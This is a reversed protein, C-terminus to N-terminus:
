QFVQEFLALMAAWSKKDADADYAIAEMGYSGADPNTFGHKAGPYSVLEFDVDAATMEKRFADVQEPPVMSDAEGHLALIQGKIKGKEV